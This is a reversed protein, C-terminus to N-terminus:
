CGDGVGAVRVPLRGPARRGLLVQVVARMTGYTDGYAAIKAGAVSPGLSWPADTAVVVDGSVPGGRYGTISVRTGSGVGLGAARAARSFTAVDDAPGTVRVSSGVLRQGCPGSVQTVARRSLRYAAPAARGPRLGRGGLTTQHELLAVQRAAAQQLRRKSLAGSRVAAIIGARAAAPSPPMVLVDVGARLARVASSASGHRRTVAGMDLADSVVVGQFGLEQRLMGTVVTRSLSSPTGPDVKRVDLHGVMVAPLGADVGRAFPVLDVARLRSLSRTQRPLTQHSDAPVSGHGPFHKLVPVVGASMFGQGAAVVARAARKPFSSASRSGITPDSPGSTVDADPAFDVTLGLRHLERGSARYAERTVRDDDAAGASMFAPFRSLDAQIREVLGGEQDASVWLPWDRGSSRQLRALQRRLSTSSGVNEGFVIVGGLHLDRVMARPTRTGRYDAVIVQGALDRLPMRRVKRVAARIEVDSPGWGTGIGLTAATRSARQQAQAAYASASPADDGEGGGRAVLGSVVLLVATLAACAALLRRDLTM